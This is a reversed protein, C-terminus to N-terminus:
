GGGVAPLFHIESESRVPTLLGRTSLHGDVSVALGSALEDGNCLRAAIGPFRQDLSEVVRRLTSGEVRVRDIGGTLERMAPPIFVTPM